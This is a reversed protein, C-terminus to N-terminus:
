LRQSPEKSPNQTMAQRLAGVTGIYDGCRGCRVPTHDIATNKIGLACAGCTPCPIQADTLQNQVKDDALHDV